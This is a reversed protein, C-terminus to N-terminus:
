AGIEKEPVTVDSWIYGEATDRHIGPHGYPRMCMLTLPAPGPAMVTAPCVDHINM